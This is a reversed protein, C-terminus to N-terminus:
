KIFILFFEVQEANVSKNLLRKSPCDVEVEEVSTIRLSDDSEDCSHMISFTM